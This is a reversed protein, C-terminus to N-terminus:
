IHILAVEVVMSLFQECVRRYALKDHGIPKQLAPGVGSLREVPPVPRPRREEVVPLQIAQPTDASSQAVQRAVARFTLREDSGEALGKFVVIEEARELALSGTRHPRDEVVVDKPWFPTRQFTIGPSRIATRPSVGVGEASEPSRMSVLLRRNVKNDM